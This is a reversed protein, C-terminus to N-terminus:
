CEQYIYIVQNHPKDSKDDLHKNKTDRTDFNRSVHCIQHSESDFSPASKIM